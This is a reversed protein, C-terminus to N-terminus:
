SKKQDPKKKDIVLWQQIITFITTILWYLIIGSAFHKGIIFTLIPGMYIMQEQLMAGFDPSYEKEKTAESKKEAKEKTSKKNKKVMMKGQIFQAIATLTTLLFNPKSLDLFGFAIPNLHEPTKLFRYTLNSVENIDLGVMFVRYLAIFFIIQIIMPLCGSAPNVGKEKYFEMIKKGQEQKDHKYKEQIKKLEPQIEQMKRQSDISKKSIPLLAFRVMVTLLIISIGFDPFILYLFILLNYLPQFFITSFLTKILTM